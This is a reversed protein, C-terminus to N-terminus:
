LGFDSPMIWKVGAEIAADIIGISTSKLEPSATFVLIVADQGKLTDILATQDAFDVKAIKLNSADVNDPATYNSSPRTLATVTFKPTTSALLVRVVFTGIM